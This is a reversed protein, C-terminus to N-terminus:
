VLLPRLQEYEAQTIQESSMYVATPWKRRQMLVWTHPNRTGPPQQIVNNKCQFVPFDNVTDYYGWVIFWYIIQSRDPGQDTTGM